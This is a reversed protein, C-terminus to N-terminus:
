LHAYRQRRFMPAAILFFLVGWGVCAALRAAFPVISEYFYLSYFLDCVLKAPNVWTSIPGARAISDALEMAPEGYLGAFIALVCTLATLIGSGASAGGQLPLSGVVAGIGTALVAGGALGLLCLGERGEFDIGVVFRMYVFAVTLFTLSLLWSGVLAGTLQRIRSVGAICRRAATASATPRINAVALMALQAAFLTAMGLLAYYFRVTQDPAARTFSVREASASRSLARAVAEYDILVSPNTRAIEEILARSQTYSSAVEELITRNVAYGAGSGSDLHASSTEPAVILQPRLEEDVMYIGDVEGSALLDRATKEDQAEVVELLPAAASVTGEAEGVEAEDGVSLAEVVFSFPSVDWSDDHVVAVPVPEISEATRMGSFMFIFLTSMIIPFALAWVLASPTRLLMRVTVRFTSLM